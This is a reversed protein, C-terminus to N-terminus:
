KGVQQSEDKTNKDTEQTPSVQETPPIPILDPM